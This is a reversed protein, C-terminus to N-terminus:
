FPFLIGKEKLKEFRSASFRYLQAPRTRGARRANKLPTLIGLLDMKRRFNRKDLPRDLIAEYVAQLESLTFAEPLLQFGVTTYELKNRLRELAYTLIKAHDFALAPLASMAHWRAEAADSGSRLTRDAAILAFYAVTVVRGRPDRHPDGFTYLQELYVDKVGTEEELERRAAADLSEHELVFGGPIAWQGAFPEIGRRVLLVRFESEQITFIVVDVTLRLESM